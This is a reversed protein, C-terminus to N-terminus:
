SPFPSGDVALEEIDPHHEIVGLPFIAERFSRILRELRATMIDDLKDAYVDATIRYRLIESM